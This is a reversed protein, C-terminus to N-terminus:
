NGSTGVSGGVSPSSVVHDCHVRVRQPAWVAVMTDEGQREVSVAGTFVLSFLCATAAYPLM